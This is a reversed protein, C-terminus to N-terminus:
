SKPVYTVVRKHTHIFEEVIKGVAAHIYGADQFAFTEVALGYFETTSPQDNYEDWGAEANVFAKDILDSSNSLEKVKDVIEVPIADGEAFIRTEMKFSFLATSVSFGAYDTTKINHLANRM